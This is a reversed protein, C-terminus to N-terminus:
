VGTITRADILRGPRTRASIFREVDVSVGGRDVRPIDLRVKTNCFKLISREWVRVRNEDTVTPFLVMFSEPQLGDYVVAPLHDLLLFVVHKVDEVERVVALRTEVVNNIIPLKGLVAM